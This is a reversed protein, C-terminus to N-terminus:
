RVIRWQDRVKCVKDNKRVAFTIGSGGMIKVTGIEGGAAASDEVEYVLMKKKKAGDFYGQFKQPIIVTATEELM